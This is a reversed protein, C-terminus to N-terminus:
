STCTETTCIKLRDKCDSETNGKVQLPSMKRGVKSMGDKSTNHLRSFSQGVTLTAIKRNNAPCISVIRLRVEFSHLFNHVSSDMDTFILCISLKTALTSFEIESM